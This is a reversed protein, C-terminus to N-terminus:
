PPPVFLRPLAGVRVDTLNIVTKTGKEGPSRVEREWRVVLRDLDPAVWYTTTPSNLASPDDDFRWIACAHGAFVEDSERHYVTLGRRAGEAKEDFGPELPIGSPLEKEAESFGVPTATKGGAALRWAKKAGGDLILAPGDGLGKRRLFGRVAIEYSDTELGDTKFTVRARYGHTAARVPGPVPDSSCGALAFALSLFAPTALAHRM